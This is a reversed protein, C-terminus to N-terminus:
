HNRSFYDWVMFVKASDSNIGGASWPRVPGLQAAHIKGSPDLVRKAHFDGFLVNYAKLHYGEYGGFYGDSLLAHIPHRGRGRMPFTGLFSPDPDAPDTLYNWYPWTEGPQSPRVVPEPYMDPGADRPATAPMAPVAYGYAGFPSIPFNHSNEWEPDSRRPHRFRQLFCARGNPGNIDATRNNPCYFLDPNKGVYKPYLLGNNVCIWDDGPTGGITYYSGEMLSFRFSGVMPLRSKNDASYASMGFGQQQLNSLCAAGRAQERARSLAPLLVAVLVAIIAVVVLVEILTFAARPPRCRTGAIWIRTLSM